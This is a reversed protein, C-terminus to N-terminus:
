AVLGRTVKALQLRIDGCRKAYRGQRAADITFNAVPFGDRTAEQKFARIMLCLDSCCARAAHSFDFLVIQKEVFEAGNMANRLDAVARRCQDLPRPAKSAEGFFAEVEQISDRVLALEVSVADIFYKRRDALRSTINVLWYAAIMTVGADLLEGLTIKCEVCSCSSLLCALTIAAVLCAIM